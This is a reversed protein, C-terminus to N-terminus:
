RTTLADAPDPRANRGAVRRNKARKQQIRYGLLITLIVAYVLPELTDLKVQWYYHWVGLIAAPYVLRHLLKWRRGLRAMWGKTSTVALPILMLLAAFGITIFPRKVVDELILGIDLTRDLVVYVVLHLMLYFFAFLGIMRRYAILWRWGTLDSLPTIALGILLFRLTWVGALDMIAEVPNAGLSVGALGFVGAVLYFAPGLCALFLPPKTWRRFSKSGAQM